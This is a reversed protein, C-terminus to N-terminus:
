KKMSIISYWGWMACRIKGTKPNKLFVAAKVNRFKGAKSCSTVVEGSAVIDGAVIDRAFKKM